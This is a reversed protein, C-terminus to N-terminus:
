AQGVAGRLWWAIVVVCSGQRRPRSSRWRRGSILRVGGGAGMAWTMDPVDDGVCVAASVSAGSRGSRWSSRERMALRWTRWWRASSAWCSRGYGQEACATKREEQNPDELLWFGLRPM